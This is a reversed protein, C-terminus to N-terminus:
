WLKIMLGKHTAYMMLAVYVVVVCFTVIVVSLKVKEDDKFITFLIKYIIFGIAGGLTNLIIDDVDTIGIGFGFQLIEVCLSTLFAIIVCKIFNIDKKFIKLYIGLPIFILINGIVNLLAISSNSFNTYYRNITHFPILNVSRIVERDSNFVDTLPIYKFFLIKSMVIIYGVFIVGLAMNVIKKKDNM